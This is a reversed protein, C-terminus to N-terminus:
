RALRELSERAQARHKPQLHRGVATLAAAIVAADDTFGLGVFLDPVADAPLVFYAIAGLLVARVRTPTDRDLACHYGALLDEAFPIRALVRRLKTWFRREDPMRYAVPLDAIPVDHSAEMVSYSPRISGASL